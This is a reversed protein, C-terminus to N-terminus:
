SAPASSSTPPSSGPPSTSRTASAPTTTNRSPAAPASSPPGTALGIRLVLQRLHRTAPRRAARRRAHGPGDPPRDRERVRPPRPQGPSLDGPELLRLHRRRHVQQDHADHRLLVDCFRRALHQPRAPHARRRHARSITTFGQSTPSRRHGRAARGTQLARRREAMQRALTASTYQGLAAALQRSEREIFTYRFVVVVVYSALAAAVAPTLEVWLRWHLFTYWGAVAVFALVLTIVLAGATGPAYRVSLLTAALGLLVAIWANLTFSTWRVAQGTLLGNLLAAHAAVGPMRKSVPTPTMDALSTATYGVVAIKGAVRPRLRDLTDAIEVRYAANSRLAAVVTELAAALPPDHDGTTFAQQAAAALADHQEALLEDYQTIWTAIQDAQAEDGRYRALRRESPLELRRSLDVTYDAFETLLGTSQLEALADRLRARNHAISLRRDYVQWLADIPVHPAFHETWRAQPLWPVLIRGEADLQIRVPPRDGPPRLTIADSTITVREATLGLADWAVAFALQPLVHDEYRVLLHTRRMIGDADPEYVVFGCRRAADAHLYLVPSLTRVRPAATAVTEPSLPLAGALTARLGLAQRLAVLLAEFDADAALDTQRLATFLEHPSADTPASGRLWSRVRDLLGAPLIGTRGAADFHFALYAGGLDHLVGALEHDPLAFAGATQLLANLDLALDAQRPVITRLPEPESLVIDYLLADAGLEILLDLLGAQLDRPWPWRQIKELADDDIDVCVIAPSTETHNAYRFRLDLTKLELWDLAGGAAAALVVGTTALGIAAAWWSARRKRQSVPTNQRTPQPQCGRPTPAPCAAANPINPIRLRQYPYSRGRHLKGPSLFRKIHPM